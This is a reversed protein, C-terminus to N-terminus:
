KGGGFDRFKLKWIMRNGRAGYLMPCARAVIGEFDRVQGSDELAVISHEGGLAARLEHENTPLWDIVRGYPVSMVGLKTAVDKVNEPSLWWKGVMVDFLRVACDARYLGGGKQIKAGYGEGFLVTEPFTGDPNVLAVQLKEATFTKRIYESLFIPMQASDTRGGYCVSGDSMLGIRVNTGDVKETVHWNRVNAFEPVRVRAPDVVFNDDRDYLTEIKPYGLM